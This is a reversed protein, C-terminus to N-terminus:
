IIWLSLFDRKQRRRDLYALSLARIKQRIVPLLKSVISPQREHFTDLLSHM